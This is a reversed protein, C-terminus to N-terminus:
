KEHNGEDGLDKRIKMLIRGLHNEGKGGSVGWFTDGWTNGEVLGQTGTQLLRDRLEPHAFKEYLLHEMIDVKVDDWDSRMTVKRGQRKAKGPTTCSQVDVREKPDETKAAQYAHEVSPYQLGEFRVEAPWFNSLFRYEDKFSDIM